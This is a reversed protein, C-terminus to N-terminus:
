KISEALKIMESESFLGDSMIGVSTDGIELEIQSSGILAAKVGNIMIEQIDKGTGIEYATEETIRREMILFEKGDSARKYVFDAYDPSPAGNNDKYLQVKSLAFGEPVYEPLKYDFGIHTKANELDMEILYDQEGDNEGSFEVVGDKTKVAGEKIENGNEDLIKGDEVTFHISQGNEDYVELVNEKLYDNRGSTNPDMQIISNKGTSIVKIIEAMFDKAWATQSVAVGSVVAVCAALAAAKKYNIKKGKKIAKKMVCREKETLPKEEYASFDMHMENFLEYKNKM